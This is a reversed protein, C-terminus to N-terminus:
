INLCLLVNWTKLRPRSATDPSLGGGTSIRLGPPRLTSRRFRYFGGCNSTLFTGAAEVGRLSSM